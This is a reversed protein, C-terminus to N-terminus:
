LDIVLTDDSPSLFKCWRKDVLSFGFLIPSALLLEDDSLIPPPLNEGLRNAKLDLEDDQINVVPTVGKRNREATRRSVDPNFHSFTDLRM